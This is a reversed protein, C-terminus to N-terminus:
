VAHHLTFDDQHYSRHQHEEYDERRFDQEVVRVRDACPHFGPIQQTDMLYLTDWSAVQTFCRIASSSALVLFFLIGVSSTAHKAGPDAAAARLRVGGLEPALGTSAQLCDGTVDDRGSCSSPVEDEVWEEWVERGGLHKFFLRRTHLM